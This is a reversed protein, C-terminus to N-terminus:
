SPTNSPIKKMTEPKRKAKHPPKTRLLSPPPPVRNHMRSSLINDSLLTDERRSNSKAEDITYGDGTLDFKPLTYDAGKNISDSEM